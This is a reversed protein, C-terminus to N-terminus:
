HAAAWNDGIGVDAPLPVRLSAAGSMVARLTDAVDNARERPAEVVLEDHVQLLMRAGMGSLLPHVKVMALKIIDAASGQVPTNIAMREAARRANMSRSNIDPIRRRRGLLTEAYGKERALAIAQDMWRKVGPYLQFYRDIFSRAEKRSIKLNRALGFDSIGYIVGFNVAKARRRMESTVEDLPVDFVEAATAQHIDKGAHFAEILSEDESFHAMLRLEIQSYDASVLVKDPSGAIFGERIRRGIETRVPINQLNPDSSSLRGTATIAQNFSTHLRGTRPNVMRPLADVYTNRLKELARYELILAPLPHEEALEELVEMDTSLGTKTKRRPKLKLKGFLIEQLQKTSNINFAEGALAYIQQVYANLQTELETHLANFLDLDLAVGAMEMDALIGVLPMEVERFLYEMGERRIAESLADRLQLALDADEAAYECAQGVPVADFTIALAGKGILSSIPIPTIGLHRQSVENLNHRVETGDTLYSGVMSDFAVGRLSIGANALVILDYKINHGCKAPRDSELIPRLVRLVLELPLQSVQEVTEGRQIWLAEPRHGVPVYWSTHAACSFSLGVLRASIPDTSTTETDVAICEAKSLQSTLEQLEAETTVLRYDRPVAPRATDAFLLGQVGGSASEDSPLEPQGEKGKDGDEEAEAGVLPFLSRFGLQDLMVKLKRPDPNSPQCALPDAPLVVDRRITALDRSLFALDRDTELYERKKGKVEDIRAYLNELSGFQQMLDKATKEGIGRVGPINDATDGILGLADPVREPPAGFREVVDEVGFWQGHDNKGPDFMRIHDGILQMLDKDGSVLVVDLGEAAAREALTGIVDDAEVGEVSFLPLGLACVVEHMRPFQELLDEPTADRNAKYDAYLEERFTPGPADFVVAIYDPQQERLLKLLIRTLGYIANTPRGQPDSLRKIAYFARFAFAMADVIYFTKRMEGKAGKTDQQKEPDM